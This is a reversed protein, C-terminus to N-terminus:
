AVIRLARGEPDFEPIAELRAKLLKVFEEEANALPLCEFLQVASVIPHRSVEFVKKGRRHGFSERLKLVM